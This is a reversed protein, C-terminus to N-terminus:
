GAKELKFMMQQYFPQVRVGIFYDYIHPVFRLPGPVYRDWNTCPHLHVEARAFGAAEAHKRVAAITNLRYVAPYENFESM